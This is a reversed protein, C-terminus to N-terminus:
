VLSANKNITDQIIRQVHEELHKKTDKDLEKPYIPTGYEIM